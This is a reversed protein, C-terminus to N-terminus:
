QDENKDLWAVVDPWQASCKMLQQRYEHELKMSNNWARLKILEEVTDNVLKVLVKPELADLEWSYEGFEEMYKEFRSDSEKAPNPPPNYKRVQDMNLAMRRVVAGADFLTLRETIDRTMDLGSPDHDGFHLIEIQKGQRSQYALRQAAGWIESDSTYGRCSFYPLRYKEAAREFVGLLADKEFWLEVYYPQNKWPNVQFQQASGEIIEAPNNWSPEKRLFRTRDVIANWSILGARRANSVVTGLRKYEKDTNPLYNRSVFQYYLQRLTLSYGQKEYEVIIENAQAIMTLARGYFKIDEYKIKM